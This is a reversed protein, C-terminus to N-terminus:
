LRLDTPRFAEMSREIIRLALEKRGWKMGGDTLILFLDANNLSIEVQLGRKAL